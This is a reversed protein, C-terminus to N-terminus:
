REALRLGDVTLHGMFAATTRFKSRGRSISSSGIGVGPCSWSRTADLGRTEAVGVDVGRAALPRDLRRRRENGAVFSDADDLADAGAVNVLELGSHADGEGPEAIGAAGALVAVAAALREARLLQVHAVGDIAAEGLVGEAVGAVDDADGVADVWHVGRWEGAGADGGVLRDFDEFGAGRVEDGHEADAAEPVEGDLVGADGTGGHHRDVDVFCAELGGALEAGLVRDVRRLFVRDRRDLAEAAGVRGDRGRHRWLRELL